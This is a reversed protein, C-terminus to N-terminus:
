KGFSKQIQFKNTDNLVRKFKFNTKIMSTVIMSLNQRKLLIEVHFGIFENCIFCIIVIEFLKFLEFM